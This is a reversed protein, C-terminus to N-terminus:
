GSGVFLVWDVRDESVALVYRMVARTSLALITGVTSEITDATSIRPGSLGSGTERFSIHTRELFPGGFM